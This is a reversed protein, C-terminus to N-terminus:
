THADVEAPREGRAARAAAVLAQVNVLPTAPPIACGAMLVFRRPGAAAITARAAAAVAQPSGREMVQIPDVNGGLAIEWGVTARARRLDMCQDLSLLRAGSAAMSPLIPGTKGCIHVLVPVALAEIVRRREPAAYEVSQEPSVLDTSSVPDPMIIVDAGASALARGWEILADAVRAILRRTLGPDDMMALLLPTTGVVRSAATFPAEFLGAVPLTGRSRERLISVARLIEPLRRDRGPDPIPREFVSGSGDLPLEEAISPGGFEKLVVACGFAEPIALPDFYAYLADYGARAQVDLQAAALVEGRAMVEGLPRGSTQAIWGGALPVVPIRDVEGGDLAALVRERSTQWERAADDRNM